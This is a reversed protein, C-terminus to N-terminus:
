IPELRVWRQLVQPPEPLAWLLHRCVIVDFQKAAFQPFAADVVKFTISQQATKAKAQAIALMDPSLDVGTVTHGLEALVLSLTGTGCGIDLVESKHTPLSNQLLQTWAARVVPDRLGHDPQNDFSAAEANWLERTKQLRLANHSSENDRLTSQRTM